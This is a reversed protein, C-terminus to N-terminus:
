VKRRDVSWGQSNNWKKTTYFSVTIKSVNLFKAVEKALKFRHEENGKTVFYMWEKKPKIDKKPKKSAKRKTIKFTDCKISGSSIKGVRYHPVGSIEALESLKNAEFVEGTKTNELKYHARIGTNGKMGFDADPKFYREKEFVHTIQEGDLNLYRVNEKGTGVIDGIELVSEPSVDLKVPCEAFIENFSKLTGDTELDFKNLREGIIM